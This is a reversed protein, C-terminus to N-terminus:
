KKKRAKYRKVGYRVGEAGGYMPVAFLAEDRISRPIDRVSEATGAGYLATEGAMAAARALKPSRAAIQAVRAATAGQMGPILGTLMAGGGEYALSELPNADEYAKQQARIMDRERLYKQRLSSLDGESISRGLARVGGEIEDGFGFTVGQGVSRARDRFTPGGNKYGKVAGGRKMAKRAIEGTDAFVYAKAVPDYVADRNDVVIVDGAKPKPAEAPAVENGAADVMDGAYRSTLDELAPQEAPSASVAAPYNAELEEMSADPVGGILDVDRLPTIGATAGISSGIRGGRIAAEEAATDLMNQFAPGGRAILEALEAERRTLNSALKRGAAGAGYLTGTILGGTVPDVLFGGLVGLGAGTGFGTGGQPSLRGVAQAVNRVPTGRSVVRIAEEVDPPYMKTGRIEATDLNGFARRIGLDEGGQSYNIDGRAQGLERARELERGLIRRQAVERAEKIGPLANTAEAFDDFTKTLEGSFMRAKNDPAGDRMATRGEAFKERIAKAEMPTIEKGRFSRLLKYADQVPGTGLLNGDQDMFTNNRLLAETDDIFTDVDDPAIKQGQAQAQRYLADAEQGLDGSSPVSERAERMAGPAFVDPLARGVTRGLYEGGLSSILGATAGELPDEAQTAGSITSFIADQTAPSRLFPNTVGGIRSAPGLLATTATQGLVDGIFSAAPQNQRVAEMKEQGGLLALPIGATASTAASLVGAGVPNQAFETVGQRLASVDQTAPPVIGLQQPAGGQKFFERADNAFGVYADLNPTLGAREDLTARFAAYQSPDLDDKNDILYRLHSQQYWDPIDITETGDASLQKAGPDTAALELLRAEPLYMTMLDQDVAERGELAAAQRLYYEEALKSQAMLSPLDQSPSLDAVQAGLRRAEELTNAMGSVGGQNAEALKAVMDSIIGSEANKIAAEINRRNQNILPVNQLFESASGIALREEALERVRQLAKLATKITAKREAVSGSKDTKKFGPIATVGKSPDNPDVWMYGEPAQNTQVTTPLTREIKETEVEKKGVDAVAGRQELTPKRPPASFINDGFEEFTPPPPVAM